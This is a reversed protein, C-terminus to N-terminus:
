YHDESFVIQIKHFMITGDRDRVYFRVNAHIDHRDRKKEFVKWGQTESALKYELITRSQRTRIPQGYEEQIEERSSFTKLHKDLENRRQEVVLPLLNTKTGSSRCGTLVSACIILALGGIYVAKLIRNMTGEKILFQLWFYM